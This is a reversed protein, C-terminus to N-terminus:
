ANVNSPKVLKFLITSYKSCAREERVCDSAGASASMHACVCESVYETWVIYVRMRDILVLCACVWVSVCVCERASMKVCLCM